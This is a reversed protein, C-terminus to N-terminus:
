FVKCCPFIINKYNRIVWIQSGFCYSQPAGYSRSNINDEFHWRTKGSWNPGFQQRDLLHKRSDLGCDSRWSHGPWAAGCGWHCQCRLSFTFFLFLFIFLFSSFLNKFFQHLFQYFSCPCVLKPSTRPTIEPNKPTQRQPSLVPVYVEVLFM